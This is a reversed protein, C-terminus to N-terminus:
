TPPPWRRARAAPRAAPPPTPRAGCGPSSRSPTPASPSICVLGAEDAAGGDRRRGADRGPPLGPGDAPRGERQLHRRGDPQGHRRRGPPQGQDSQLGGERDAQTMLRRLFDQQRSIRGLDSTPDSRWRGAEYYQFYRSRVWALAQRATSCRAVPRRSTSAADGPHRPTTPVTRPLAGPHVHPCRRHRRGDDPLRQLRDARLPPHARRLEVQHRQHRGQPGDEFSQNILVQGKYKPLRM